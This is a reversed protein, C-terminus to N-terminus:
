VLVVPDGQQVAGPTVVAAYVGLNGANEAVLTADEDSLPRTAADQLQYFYYGDGEDM